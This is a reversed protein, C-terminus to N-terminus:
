ARRQHAQANSRLPWGAPRRATTTDANSQDQTRNRPGRILAALLLVCAGTALMPLFELETALMAVLTALQIRQAVLRIYLNPAKPEAGACANDVVM